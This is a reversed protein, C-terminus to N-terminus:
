RSRVVVNGAVSGLLKYRGEAPASSLQAENLAEDIKKKLVGKRYAYVGVKFISM